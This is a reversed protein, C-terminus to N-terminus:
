SRPLSGHPGSGKERETRVYEMLQSLDMYFDELEEPSLAHGQQQTDKFRVQFFPRVGGLFTPPAKPIAFTLDYAPRKVLYVVHHTEHIHKWDGEAVPWEVSPSM